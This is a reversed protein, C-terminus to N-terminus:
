QENGTLVLNSGDASLDFFYSGTGAYSYVRITYKGTVVPTFNITEQRTTGTASAVSTGSPDYLYVDFDPNTSSAWNPMVMTIAIPYNASD